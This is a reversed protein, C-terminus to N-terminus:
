AGEGWAFWILTLSGNASPRVVHEAGPPVYYANSAQVAHTTGAIEAVGSGALIVFAQPFPNTDGPENLQEGPKLLYWGSRFGVDAYLGVVHGGHVVRSADEEMLVPEGPHPNFFRQTFLVIRHYLEQSFAVGDPLRFDLPAKQRLNERGAATLPSISGSRLRRLLETTTVVIFEPNPHEGPELRTGEEPSATLRWAGADGDIDFSVAIPAGPCGKSEYAAAMAALIQNAQM